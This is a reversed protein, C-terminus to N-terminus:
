KPTVLKKFSRIGKINKTTNNKLEKIKINQKITISSNKWSLIEINGTLTKQGGSWDWVSFRGFSCSVINTDLQINLTKKEKAKNTDIFNIFLEYCFEEDIVGPKNYCFSQKLSTPNKDQILTSEKFYKKNKYNNLNSTFCSSVILSFSVILFTNKM